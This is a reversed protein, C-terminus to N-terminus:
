STFRGPQIQALQQGILGLRTFPEFEKERAALITADETAQDYAQQAQGLQDQYAGLGQRAQLDAARAQQAQQFGQNLLQAQLMARDNASQNMFQQQMIGQRAGGYAGAGIAQDRLGTQNIAQQRDFESLTADM